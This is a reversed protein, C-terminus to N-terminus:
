TFRRKFVELSVQGPLGAAYIAFLVDRFCGAFRRHSFWAGFADAVIDPDNRFVGCGWAGLVLNAARAHAAVALVYGARRRVVTEIEQHTHGRRLLEGANPAPATIVDLEVPEELLKYNDDRFFTVGHSYIINDTYLLSRASKNASYYEPQELLSPYLNSCRCLDEEQARAGRKYGGGPNRASAFNLLAVRDGGAERKLARAANGTKGEAVRIRPAGAYKPKYEALKALEEPTFLHTEFAPFMVRRGSPARYFGQEFCRKNEDFLSM